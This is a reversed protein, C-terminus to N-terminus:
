KKSFNNGGSQSARCCVNVPRAAPDPELMRSLEMSTPSSCSFLISIFSAQSFVTSPLRMIWSSARCFTIGNTILEASNLLNHAKTDSDADLSMVLCQEIQPLDEDHTQQTHNPNCPGLLLKRARQLGPDTAVRPDHHLIEVTAGAETHTIKDGTIHRKQPSLTRMESMSKHPLLEERIGSEHAILNRCKLSCSKKADSYRQDMPSQCARRQTLPAPYRPSAASSALYLPM